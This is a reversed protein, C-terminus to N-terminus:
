RRRACLGMPLAMNSTPDGTAQRAAVHARLLYPMGPQAMPHPPPSGPTALAPPVTQAPTAPAPQQVVPPAQQAAAIQAHMAASQQVGEAIRHNAGVVDGSRLIAAAEIEAIRLPASAMEQAKDLPVNVLQSM